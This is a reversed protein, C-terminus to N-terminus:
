ATPALWSAPFDRIPSASTELPEVHMPVAPGPHSVSVPQPEGRARSRKSSRVAVNTLRVTDADGDGTAGPPVTVTTASSEFRVLPSGIAPTVTATLKCALSGFPGHAPTHPEPFTVLLAVPETLRETM